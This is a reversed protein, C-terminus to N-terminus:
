LELTLIDRLRESLPTLDATVGAFDDLTKARRLKESVSALRDLEVQNGLGRLFILVVEIDALVGQRHWKCQALNGAKVGREIHAAVSFRSACVVVKPRHHKRGNTRLEPKAEDEPANTEPEPPHAADLERTLDRGFAIVDDMHARVEFRLHHRPFAEPPRPEMRVACSGDGMWILAVQDPVARYSTPRLVMEFDYALEYFSLDPKRWDRREFLEDIGVCSRAVWKLGIEGTQFDDLNYTARLWGDVGIPHAALDFFGYEGGQEPPRLAIEFSAEVLRYNHDRSIGELKAL